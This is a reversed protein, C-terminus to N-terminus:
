KCKPNQLLDGPTILYSEKEHAKARVTAGVRVTVAV